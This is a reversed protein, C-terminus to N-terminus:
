TGMEVSTGAKKRAVVGNLCAFFDPVDLPKPLYSQAGAELARSQRGPSVDASLVVIPISATDRHSKLRALVEDGSIDPLHMDLLILDPGHSHALECGLEGRMASLLRIEPRHALLRQVLQLNSPNDEIYLVVLSTSEMPAADPLLVVEMAGSSLPARPLDLWFTSGQGVASSVHLQSNMAQALSQSVALGVGSGEINTNEAGLRDFPTWLRALDHSAIGAGSDRVSLRVWEGRAEVSLAVHGDARNYKVANALLNLLIQKLRQRDAVLGIEAPRAGETFLEIGSSAALPRVLDLAELALEGADLPEPSLSMQGSEIRAIDLVENILELLHRGAKVIQETSQADEEALPAMELLQGFGLIANLPTRLEHSMRSLFESKALNAREAQARAEDAETKALQLQEVGRITHTVDYFIGDWVVRGDDERKPQSNGRIWKEEQGPLQVRGQWEWAELTQASQEVMEFFMDVDEAHICSVLTQSNAMIQAPELDFLERCGHSVFSFGFSRDPYLVCQHVMGPVNAAIRQYRAESERLLEHTQRRETIDRQISVWHTFWGKENAVPSISLEVWFPTGDKKYNVIDIVIPKWRKLARRIRARAEDSTGEGQLIRPTQGLIEDMSYGSMRSYAENAYLIRPGPEDVPEAETILIADNANVAVSELLRLREETAHRESIDRLHGVFVPPESNPVPVVALEVILKQGDKHVAPLELRKGLIPGEKTAIYRAVGATHAERLEPPLILEHLLQGMAEEHSFGFTREAAPNWELVRSDAGISVICDLATQVIAAKRAESQLLKQEMQKRSSVDQMQAVFYLPQGAEDRVLAANIAVWILTGDGRVYRKELEYSGIEGALLRGALEVDSLLDDPHAVDQFSKRKLEEESYGLIQCLCANVQLWRGDPCVLAMGMASMEFASQFRARADSLALQAARRANSEEALRRVGLRLELEDVVVAALDELTSREDASLDRPRTDLVCLSGLAQGERSVLPAGAYFRIHPAGTVLPNDSFRPDLGADPVVFVKNQQIAHKCFSTERPAQCLDFGCRSKFWQRQSDVLSIVSIPADFLRSCLSTIRDFAAEPPTDLVDLRKLADLREAEDPLFNMCVTRSSKCRSQGIIKSGNM